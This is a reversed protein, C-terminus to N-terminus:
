GSIVDNANIADFRGNVTVFDGALRNMLKLSYEPIM